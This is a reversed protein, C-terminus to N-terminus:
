LGRRERNIRARQEVRRIVDDALRDMMASDIKLAPAAPARGFPLPMGSAAEQGPFSRGLSQRTLERSDAQRENGASEAAPPVGRRWALEQPHFYPQAATSEQSHPPAANSKATSRPRLVLPEHKSVRLTQLTQAQAQVDAGSGLRIGLHTQRLNPYHARDAAWTATSPVIPRRPSGASPAALQVTTGSDSRAHSLSFGRAPRQARVAGWATIPPVIPRRASDAHVGAVQANADSDGRANPRALVRVLRQVRNTIWTTTPPVVLRRAPIARPAVVLVSTGSDGYANPRSFVRVLRQVHDTIWTTTPPVVPQRASNAYPAAARISAGSDDRAGLRSVVYAPRQGHEPVQPASPQVVPRRASSAFPAAAPVNVGSGSLAERHSFVYVSRQDRRLQPAVLRSEVITRGYYMVVRRQCISAVPLSGPMSGCWPRDNVRAMFHLHFQPLWVAGAALAVRSAWVGEPGKRKKRWFLAVPRWADRPNARRRRAAFRLAARAAPALLGYSHQSRGPKM